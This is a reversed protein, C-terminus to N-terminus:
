EVKMFKYKEEAEERSAFVEFEYESIEKEPQVLKFLDTLYQGNDAKNESSVFGSFGYKERIDENKCIIRGLFDKLNNGLIYGNNELTVMAVPYDDDSIDGMGYLTGIANGFSDVAFISFRPVTYFHFDERKCEKCFKINFDQELIDYVPNEDRSNIVEVGSPVTEIVEGDEMGFVAVAGTTTECDILIRSM